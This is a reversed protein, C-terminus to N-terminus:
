KNKNTQKENFGEIVRCHLISFNDAHAVKMM